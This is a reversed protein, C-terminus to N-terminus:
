MRFRILAIEQKKICEKIVHSTAGMENDPVRNIQLSAEEFREIEQSREALNVGNAGPKLRQTPLLLGARWNPPCPRQPMTEVRRPVQCTNPQYQRHLRYIRDSGGYCAGTLKEISFLCALKLADFVTM